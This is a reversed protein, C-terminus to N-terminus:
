KRLFRKPVEFSKKQLFFKSDCKTASHSFNLVFRLPHEFSIKDGSFVYFYRESYSFLILCCLQLAKKPSTRSTLATDGMTAIDGVCVIEASKTRAWVEIINVVLLMGNANREEPPPFTWPTPSASTFITMFLGFM